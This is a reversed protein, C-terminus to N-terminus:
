SGTCRRVGFAMDARMSMRIARQFIRALHVPSRSRRLLKRPSCGTTLVAGEDVAAAATIPKEVRNAGIGPCSVPRPM